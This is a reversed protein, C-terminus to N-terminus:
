EKEKGPGLDLALIKERDRLFLTRGSLTPVTWATKKCVNTMKGLLRYKEPDAKVLFLTGDEDLVILKGDAHVVNAKAIGRQRWGLKGTKANVCALFAPGFDGSSGYVWDGVRVADGHQIKMKPNFWAERATIQSGAKELKVGRSGMGYASSIFLHNDAACWVPTSINAGWQTPHDVSWLTKGNSPDLGLVANGSFAVLQETGEPKILILSAFGPSFDGAHWAVKGDSQNFAMVANENDKSVTLLIKGDHALPSAGYGRNNLAADYKGLLDHSWILKGDAKNLCFLTATTGVAFLRDGVIIPTSHPGAGFEMQLDKNKPWPADYKHEWKTKGTTADLAIIFEEGKFEDAKDRVSYQTYLTDGECLITSYGDGLPREWLKPPGDKPWRNALGTAPSTFNRDAGGWQLWPAPDNPATPPDVPGAMAAAEEAARKKEAEALRRTFEGKEKLRDGANIITYLRDTESEIKTLPAEPDRSGWPAVEIKEKSTIEMRVFLGRDTDFWGTGSHTGDIKGLRKGEKPKEDADKTITGTFTVVAMERGDKKEVRDLKCEYVVDTRGVSPYVDKRTTKWTDGVKVDRNPYLVFPLEGFMSKMQDDSFDADTLVTAIFNQPGVDALKKRIAEGGDVQTALGNKDIRIKVLMDMVPTFAAKYDPSAEEADPADSDFFMTITPGFSMYGYLRDVTGAVEFAGDKPTITEILGHIGKIKVEMPNGDPGAMKQHVNTEFQAYWNAPPGAKPKLSVSEGASIPNTTLALAVMITLASVSAKIGRPTNM